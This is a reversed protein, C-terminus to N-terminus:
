RYVSTIPGEVQVCVALGAIITSEALKKADNRSAVTTLAILM